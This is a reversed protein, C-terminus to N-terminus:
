AYLVTRYFVCSEGCATWRMSIADPWEGHADSSGEMIRGDAKWVVHWSIVIAYWQGLRKEWKGRRWDGIADLTGVGRGIGREVRRM